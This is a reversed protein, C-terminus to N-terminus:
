REGNIPFLKKYHNTFLIDKNSVYVMRLNNVLIIVIFKHNMTQKGYDRVRMVLYNKM